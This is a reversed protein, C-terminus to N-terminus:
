PIVEVPIELGIARLEPTALKLYIATSDPSRHGLVDGITKMTVGANLLGVARAHRFAHPGHKRKLIVEAKQLRHEVMHYLSSGARLSQFPARVRLFVERAKTQPRGNRLYALIAEGVPALLPLFSECRTKSHRVRLREKRWDIDDLRLATVEGARLGYTALLLLIAQDRLGKPTHDMKVSQLVADVHDARLAPPISEFAYRQPSVVTGSLDQQILGQIQLYRLFGRLCLALKQRTARRLQPARQTLYHDLDAVTIQALLLEDGGREGLSELLRYAEAKRNPITTVALGRVDSLWQAYANCLDRRFTEQPSAPVTTPPWKGQALRMVIHVGSTYGWRWSRMDCPAHGHRKRYLNLKFALFAPEHAGTASAVDVREKALYLLFGRAAAMRKETASLSYGSVKLHYALQVILPDNITREETSM